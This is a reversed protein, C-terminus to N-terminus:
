ARRGFRFRPRSESREGGYRLPSSAAPMATTHQEELPEAWVVKNNVIFYHSRCAHNPLGISPWLTVRNAEVLLTRGERQHSINVPKGCGCPCLHGSWGWQLGIYIKGPEMEEPDPAYGKLFEPVIDQDADPSLQLGAAQALRESLGRSM